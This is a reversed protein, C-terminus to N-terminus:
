APTLAATRPAAVPRPSIAAVPAAEDQWPWEFGHDLLVPKLWAAVRGAQLALTSAKVLRVVRTPELVAALVYAADRLALDIPQPEGPDAFRFAVLADAVARRLGDDTEQPDMGLHEMLLELKPQPGADRPLGFM